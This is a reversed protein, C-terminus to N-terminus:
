RRVTFGDFKGTPEGWEVDVNEVQAARPGSHCWSVLKQVDSKEGEFVAGVKGDPRNRVWGEVGLERAKQRTTARFFVGQVRGSILVEARRKENEEAM